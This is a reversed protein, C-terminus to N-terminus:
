EKASVNKRENKKAPVHDEKTSVNKILAGLIHSHGDVMEALKKIQDGHSQLMAKMTEEDKDQHERITGLLCLVEKDQTTGNENADTQGERDLESQSAPTDESFKLVEKGKGVLSVSNKEM